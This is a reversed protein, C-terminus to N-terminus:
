FLSSHHKDRYDESQPAIIISAVASIRGQRAPGNDALFIDDYAQWNKKYPIYQYSLELVAKLLKQDPHDVGTDSQCAETM